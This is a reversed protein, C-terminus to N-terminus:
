ARTGWRCSGNVVLQRAVTCSGDVLMRGDVVTRGAGSMTGNGGGIILVGSTGVTFDGAGRITGRVQVLRSASSPAALDLTGYVYLTEGASVSRASAISGVRVVVTPNAAVNITVDDAPGPVQNTSWNNPDHWNSDDGGGDWAVAAFLRRSELAEPLVFSSRSPRTRRARVSRSSSRSM